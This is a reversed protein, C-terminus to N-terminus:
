LITRSIYYVVEMGRAEGGIIKRNIDGDIELCANTKGKTDGCDSVNGVMSQDLEGRVFIILEQWKDYKVREDAFWPLLELSVM